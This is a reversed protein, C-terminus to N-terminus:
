ILAHRHGFACLDSYSFSLVEYPAKLLAQFQLNLFSKLRIYTRLRELSCAVLQILKKNIVRPYNSQKFIPMHKPAHETM